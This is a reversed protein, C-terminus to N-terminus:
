SQKNKEWFAKSSKYRNEFFAEDKFASAFDDSKIPTYPKESLEKLFKHHRKEDEGWSEVIAKYGKRSELWSHRLLKEGRNISQEELELHRKLSNTLSQRDQIYIEKGELFGMVISLMMIHKQSDHKIIKMMQQVLENSVENATKEYLTILEGEIQIQETLLKKAEERQELDIEDIHAAL